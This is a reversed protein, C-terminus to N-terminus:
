LSTALRVTYGAMVAWFLGAYGREGLNRNLRRGLLTAAIMLPTAALALIYGEMSILSAKTWIATKIVDGFLSVLCLAGVLHRRDFDLSRVALGKLPGATGSFGSTAGSALALLPAGAHRIREMDLREVLFALIFSALVGVTVVKEPTLVLAFAGIATGFVILVILSASRRFPLTERYAWAKVINNAALLLASLAIGEKTGLVLALAPVLVLSGGFGASASVAFSVTVALLVFAMLLPDM